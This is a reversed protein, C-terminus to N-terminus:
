AVVKSGSVNSLQFRLLFYELRRKASQKVERNM